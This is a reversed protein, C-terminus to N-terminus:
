YEVPEHNTWQQEQALIPQGPRARWFQQAPSAMSYFGGYVANTGPWGIAQFVNTWSQMDSSSELVFNTSQGGSAYLRFSSSNYSILSLSPGGDSQAAAEVAGLWLAVVCFSWLACGEAISPYRHACSRRDLPTWCSRRRDGPRLQRAENLLRVIGRIESM